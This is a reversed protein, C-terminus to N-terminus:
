STARNCYLAPRCSLEPARCDFNPTRATSVQGVAVRARRWLGVWQRGLLIPAIPGDGDHNIEGTVLGSAQMSSQQIRNRAAGSTDVLGPQLVLRLAEDVADVV